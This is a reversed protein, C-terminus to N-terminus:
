DSYFLPKSVRHVYEPSFHKNKHGINKRPHSHRSHSFQKNPHRRVIKKGVRVERKKGRSKISKEDPLRM